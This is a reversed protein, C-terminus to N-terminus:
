AVVNSNINKIVTKKLTGINYGAYFCKGCFYLFRASNYFLSAGAKPRLYFSNNFLQDQSFIFLLGNMVRQPEIQLNTAGLACM